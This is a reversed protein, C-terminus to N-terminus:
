RVEGSILWARASLEFPADGVGLQRGYEERLAAQRVPDLSRAYVGSPGIGSTIPTWLDDLNAYSARPSATGVTVAALGASEFLDRLENSTCYSMTVAEDLAAAAPDLTIAADWFKRLFTMEGGYDWTAASVHGGTCTVRVMEGLGAHADKMFNVVLQALALDFSDDDFPLHEAAAERVDVGPLRQQAAAVFSPSPDVASVHEAGLVASLERTLAGPGCGVDLASQGPRVDALDILARALESNYRGVHRDYSEADASVFIAGPRGPEVL